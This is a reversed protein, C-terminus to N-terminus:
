GRGDFDAVSALALFFFCQAQGSSFSGPSLVMTDAPVVGNGRQVEVAAQKKSEPPAAAM